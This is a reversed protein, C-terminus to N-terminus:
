PFWALAPPCPAPMYLTQSICCTRTPLASVFIDDVHARSVRSIHLLGSIRTDEIGILAGYPELRRVSGWM